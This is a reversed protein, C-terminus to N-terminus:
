YTTLTVTINNLLLLLLLLLSTFIIIIIIIIVIITIPWSTAGWAAALEGVQSEPLKSRSRPHIEFRYITGLPRFRSTSNKGRFRSESTCVYPCIVVPRLTSVYSNRVFLRAQARDDSARVKTARLSEPIELTFITPVFIAVARRTAEM